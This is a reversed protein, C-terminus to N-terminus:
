DFLENFVDNSERLRRDTEINELEEPSLNDLILEEEKFFKELGASYKSNREAPLQWRKFLADRRVASSGDSILGSRSDIKKEVLDGNKLHEEIFSFKTPTYIDGDVMKQYYQGWLPAGISGGTAKDVPKNDDRGVYLVTVTDPTVGAFWATRFENTTGTKGGQEIYKGDKGKVRANRGSGLAVVDKMMHIILSVDESEFVRERKVPNEYIVKGYRDEIKTIFVPEVKFGGNSFPLYATALEYPSVSMTGLAATLNHPIDMEVGTEAVTKKVSKIGVEQLLKIAVINISREMAELITFNKRFTKSYNRPKWEGFELKSDEVVHNMPYGQELATFYVFPKFASGPQRKAMTARNFNGEKFERGGIISKVHGNSSDMTIMAGQLDENKKFADYEAFTEQAAKQMQLDLTTYVKLGGEYIVNEDYMEFIKKQVIDTFDPTRLTRKSRRNLVVSTGEESIYDEPLDDENIFKYSHGAKMEDETIFGFRHMQRIILNGRRVANKLNTRPNYLNPRNPIGALMAAEALNLEDVDKGFFSSAATKIGYSGSGFYIENLYKQLIEDKTYKREIEVTILAEKVKRMLRKEHSLFANKALQQTITSGGQASRGKSINVIVAKTLRIPDLGHHSYFRRDEIAVFSNKVHPPLEDLDVEERIERYILDIIEGNSDYIVTPVSANYDEVLKEVDPLSEYGKYVLYGAGAGAVIIGAVVLLVLSKIIGKFTIKM